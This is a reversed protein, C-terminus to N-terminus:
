RGIEIKSCPLNGATKARLMHTIKADCYLTDTLLVGLYKFSTTINIVKSGCLVDNQTVETSTTRYHVEASKNNNIVLDWTSCWEYMTNLMIHLYIAIEAILVIDDVDIM